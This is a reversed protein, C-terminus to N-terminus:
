DVRYRAVLNDLVAPNLLNAFACAITTRDNRAIEAELPSMGPITLWVRTGVPQGTFAEAAFGSLSINKVSISFKKSCSPRLIAPIHVKQRIASRDELATESYSEPMAPDDEPRVVPDSVLDLTYLTMLTDGINAFVSQIIATFIRNCRLIVPIKIIYAM